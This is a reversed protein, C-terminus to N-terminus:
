LMVQGGNIRVTEGCLFDSQESALFVIAKAVDEPTALRRLPTNAATVLRVREPVDSLQDTDTMGPSVSNVRIGKPALDLALSRCFGRLASKATIYPLLNSEPADVYQTEISVIKGYRNKEMHPVVSRVLNFAGQIQNNLHAQFDSWILDQFKISAIKTTSCNVLATIAGFRQVVENIMESVASQNAIDCCFVHSKRGNGEIKACLERASAVNKHCHVAVDFGAEALALSTAHGIGGTGGIVLAIKDKALRRDPKEPVLKDREVHKVKAVGKTVIQRHQNSIDTRLEIVHSRDDKKIVEARVTLTDGERVPLLFELNQSFWLAGDGPLKTGIVTSIFSAGLMGHAVPKKYSTEAAFSADTHLRNDDGTLEVFRKIDDATLVHSLEASSGVYIDEFKM